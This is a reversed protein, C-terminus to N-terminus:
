GHIILTTRTLEVYGHSAIAATIAPLQALILAELAANNINGTSILLLKSPEGSLVFTSVFDADKTVVVHQQCM